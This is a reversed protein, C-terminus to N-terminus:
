AVVAPKRRALFWNLTALGIVIVMIVAERGTMRTALMATLGIGLVAFLPGGPLRFQAPALSPDRGDRNRLVILSLCVCGYIGLRSIVSLTLNALFGGSLALVVSFVAFAAISVVPTRYEAHLRGFATPLVGQEAMAYTLRPTSVMAGVFWGFLSLLAGLTMVVAGTPGALARAAAAVPRAHDAPNALALSSVLQVATYLLMCSGMAVFLAFPADKAPNKAEGLAIVGSEFGGYAFVLILLAEVWSGLGLVPGAAAPEPRGTFGIVLLGALAFVVLPVIKVVTTVSNFGAGYRVGRINIAALGGLLGLIALTKPLVGDIRPVFEGLYIVFLNANTAASAVRTLYHLWGIQLGVYPGLATRTYLYPGGTGVFRSAVEAFCAVVIGMALGALLVGVWALPGLKAAVLTPLGYVGSGIIGNLVLGALAWRGISRLLGTSETTTM